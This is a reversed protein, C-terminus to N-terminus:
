PLLQVASAAIFILIILMGAYMEAKKLSLKEIEKELKRKRSKEIIEPLSGTVSTIRLSDKKKQNKKSTTEESSLIKGKQVKEKGGM